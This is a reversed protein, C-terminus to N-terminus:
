FCINVSTLARKIRALTGRGVVRCAMCLLMLGPFASDSFMTWSSGGGIAAGPVIMM